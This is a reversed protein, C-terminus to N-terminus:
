IFDQQKYKKELTFFADSMLYTPKLAYLSWSSRIYPVHHCTVM